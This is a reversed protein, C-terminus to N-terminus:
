RPGLWSDFKNKDIVAEKFNKCRAASTLGMTKDMHHGFCLYSRPQEPNVFTHLNAANASSSILATILITWAFATRARILTQPIEPTPKDLARSATWGAMLVLPIFFFIEYRSAQRQSCAVLIAITLLWSLTPFLANRARPSSARKIIHYTSIASVAMAGAIAIAAIAHPTFLAKLYTNIGALTHQAQNNTPDAHRFMWSPFGTVAQRWWSPIVIKLTFIEVAGILLLSKCLTREAPEAGLRSQACLALGANIAIWFPLNILDIDPSASILWPICAGIILLSSTKPKSFIHFIASPRNDICPRQPADQAALAAIFALPACLLVQQKSLAALLFLLTAGICRTIEKATERKPSSRQGICIIYLMLFLTSVSEHRIESVAVLIASSLSLALSCYIAIPKKIALLLSLQYAIAAIIGCLVANEIRAVKIAASIGQPLIQGSDNLIPIHFINELTLINGKYVLTWFIGPHDAYSPGVGRLLRLAESAWLMDQDPIADYPRNVGILGVILSPTICLLTIFLDSPDRSAAQHQNHQTAHM